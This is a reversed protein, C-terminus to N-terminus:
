IDMHGHPTPRLVLTFLLNFYGGLHSVALVTRAITIFVTTSSSTATKDVYAEHGDSIQTGSPDEGGEFTYEAKLGVAVSNSLEEASPAPSLLTYDTVDSAVIIVRNADKVILQLTELKKM